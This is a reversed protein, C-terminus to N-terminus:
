KNIEEKIFSSWYLKILFAIPLHLLFLLYFLSCSFKHFFKAAEFPVENRKDSRTARKNNAEICNNRLWSEALWGIVM